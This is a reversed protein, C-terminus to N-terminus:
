SSPLRCGRTSTKRIGPLYTEQERTRVKLRGNVIAILCNAEFFFFFFPDSKGGFNMLCNVLIAHRLTQGAADMAIPRWYDLM